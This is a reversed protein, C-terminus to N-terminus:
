SPAPSSTAEPARVSSARDADYETGHKWMSWMMTAMKRALAVIAICNGRKEAIARAWLVAPDHPRSRWMSWAAQVLLAKLYTPGAKITRTRTIKGGTTAEGPVLALYSALQDASGFREPEDLHTVFALSVQPGVGPIGMLRQCVADQEAIAVIQQDLQTIQDSLHQFTQLMLDISMPLGDPHELAVARVADCFVKSTARGRLTMLRGRLWSKVNTAISRRAKLLLARASVIERRACSKESRLHATPLKNNQVSANAVAEADRDDNKIGRAGVGLLRVLHAPLVKTHHKAAIAVRAIAPSQTCAEMVVHSPPQQQLWRPLDRTKLKRKAKKGGAPSLVVVHSHTAGLDIGIHDM